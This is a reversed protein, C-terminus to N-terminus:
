QKSESQKDGSPPAAQISDTKALLARLAALDSQSIRQKEFLHAVMPTLAGQFFRELFTRSQSAVWAEESVAPYYDNAKGRQVATVAGKALLRNILTKVTTLKWQTQEALQDFLDQATQPSKKWLERLIMEEAETIPPPTSM